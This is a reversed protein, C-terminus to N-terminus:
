RLTQLYAAVDRAQKGSLGMDPMANDPVIAQPHQVWRAVNDPTNPLMGAVVTHQGFDELSPGVKGDAGAIGPIVHCSGCGMRTIVVAGEKPNGTHNRPSASRSGECASLAVCGMLVM